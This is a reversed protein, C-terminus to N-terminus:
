RVHMDSCVTDQHWKAHDFLLALDQGVRYDRWVHYDRRSGNNGASGRPNYALDWLSPTLTATAFAFFPDFPTVQPCEDSANFLHPRHGRPPYARAPRKRVECM